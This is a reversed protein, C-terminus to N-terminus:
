SSIAQAVQYLSPHYYRNQVEKDVIGREMVTFPLVAVSMFIFFAVCYFLVATRSQISEFDNRNGLDWFLAGVLLALMGYMAIRTGLIGTYNSFADTLQQAFFSRRCVAKAACLTGPNFILNLMYRRVLEFVVVPSSSRATEINTRAVETGNIQGHSPSMIQNVQKWSSFKAAWEDVTLNHMRFEDNVSALYHDACNWGAPTPYGAQSFFAEMDTRSGNYMLRGKSLLIVHDITLWIFSSPQHITLIVRRGESERTYSRLFEMIALASESDLGLRNTLPRLLACDTATLLLTISSWNFCIDRIVHHEGSTPEDLFFIEPYTLAEQSLLLFLVGFVICFPQNSHAAFLSTFIRSVFAYYIHLSVLAISLRHKQGGSLGKLFLDGVITDQQEALGLQRLLTDIRENTEDTLGIGALRAYHQMYKKCTYFGHLRDDQPVVAKYGPLNVTAAAAVNTQM